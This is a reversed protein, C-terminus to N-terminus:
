GAPPTEVYDRTARWRKSTPDFVDLHGVDALKWLESDDGLEPARAGGVRGRVLQPTDNRQGFRRSWKASIM